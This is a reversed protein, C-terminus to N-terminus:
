RPRRRWTALFDQRGHIVRLIQVRDQRVRYVLRYGEVILERRPPGLEPVIRGRESLESLSGAAAELQDLLRQASDLASQDVLYQLASLLDQRAAFAWAVTRPM